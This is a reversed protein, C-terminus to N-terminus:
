KKTGLTCAEGDCFSDRVENTDGELRSLDLPSIKKMTEIYVAETIAEYPMQKYHKRSLPLFSIAKMQYQFYNLANAIDHGEREPDFEVTCSVQNDAWYKQMFSALQLKEWMSVDYKSRIGTGADVPFEVVVTTRADELAPEVKYGAREIPKLLPSNNSMRVRRIYFRGEPYHIGPTAGALLSVTGSPKISTMKISKPIALWDSYLDDYRNIATFGEECWSKLSHIGFKALFQAVGSMSCGIRRNRLMVRNTEPWHTKSLTVTKGYLYAYKLTKIYDELSDHKAPFTEVLCCMELHELTQEACPNAGLARSDKFDPGNNMRSYNQMNELWAYGPEGNVRTREAVAAYNMGLSALISNNSTWGFEAREPNIEYNKLDVYEESTPDGFVIEATRRVNGSV